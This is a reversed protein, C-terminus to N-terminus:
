GLADFLNPPGPNSDPGIFYVVLNNQRERTSPLTVGSKTNEESAIQIAEVLFIKAPM